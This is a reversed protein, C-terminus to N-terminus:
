CTRDVFKINLNDNIKDENIKDENIKDENIGGIDSFPYFIQELRIDTKKFFSSGNLVDEKLNGINEVMDSVEKGVKKLTNAATESLDGLAKGRANMKEQVEEVSSTIAEVVKGKELQQVIDGTDKGSEDAPKVSEDAPKVSEGVPKGSENKCKEILINKSEEEAGQILENKCEEDNKGDAGGLQINFKNKIDKNIESLFNDINNM